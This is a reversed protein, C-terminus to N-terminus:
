SKEPKEYILPKIIKFCVPSSSSRGSESDSSPSSSSTISGPAEPSTLWGEGGGSGAGTIGEAGTSQGGCVSIMYGTCLLLYMHMLLVIREVRLYSGKHQTTYLSDSNNVM